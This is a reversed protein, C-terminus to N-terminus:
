GGRRIKRVRIFTYIGFSWWVVDDIVGVFPVAEDLVTVGSIFMYGARVATGVAAAVVAVLKAEDPNFFYRVATEGWGVKQTSYSAHAAM